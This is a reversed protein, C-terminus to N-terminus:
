GIIGAKIDKWDDKLGKDFYWFEDIANFYVSLGGNNRRVEKRLRGNLTNVDLYKEINNFYVRHYNGKKWEKGGKSILFDVTIKSQKIQKWAEKLAEAFYSRVSNGFRKAADRAINWATKFLETKNIKM